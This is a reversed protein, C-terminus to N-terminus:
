APGDLPDPRLSNSPIGASPDLNADFEFKFPVQHRCPQAQPPYRWQRVASLIADDYGSQSPRTNGIPRWDSSILTPTQVRGERDVVFSVTAGGEFENHLKNPLTLEAMEVPSLKSTCAPAPQEHSFANACSTVLFAAAIHQILKM